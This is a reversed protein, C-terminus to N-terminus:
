LAAPNAVLIRHRAPKVGRETPHPWDSGWVVRDPALKVFERAVRTADSYRIRRALPEIM